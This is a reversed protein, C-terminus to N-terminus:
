MKKQKKVACSLLAKTYAVLFASQIECNSKLQENIARVKENDKQLPILAALYCSAFKMTKTHNGRRGWGM